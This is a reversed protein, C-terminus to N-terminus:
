NRWRSTPSANNTSRRARPWSKSRSPFTTTSPPAPTTPSRSRRRRAAPLRFSTTRRGGGTRHRHPHGGQGRQGGYEDIMAGLSSTAPAKSRRGQRRTRVPLVDCRAGRRDDRQDALREHHRLEVNRHAPFSWDDGDNEQLIIDFPTGDMALATLQGAVDGLAKVTLSFTMSDPSYIVGIHTQEISHMHARRELRVHPFISDIPSILFSNGNATFTVGRCPPNEMRAHTDGLLKVILQLM